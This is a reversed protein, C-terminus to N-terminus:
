LLDTDIQSLINSNLNSEKIRSLLIHNSQGGLAFSAGKPNSANNKGLLPSASFYADNLNKQEPQLTSKLKTDENGGRSMDQAVDNTQNMNAVIMSRQKRDKLPPQNTSREYLNKKFQFGIYPDSSNQIGFIHTNNKLM